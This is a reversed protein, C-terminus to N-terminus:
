SVAGSARFRTKAMWIAPDALPEFGFRSYLGHADATALLIRTLGLGDLSACVGSILATGMGSGRVSRGAYADCLYAFTAGDTIVRAYAVQEGSDIRYIGFNRSADMAAEQQNRSRGAAWYSDGSLWEFVRSRDM